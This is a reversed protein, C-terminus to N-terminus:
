SSYVGKIYKKPNLSVFDGPFINHKNSARSYIDFYEQWVSPCLDLFFPHDIPQYEELSRLYLEISIQQEVTINYLEEVMIRTKIPVDKHPLGNEKLDKMMMVNQERIYENQVGWDARYGETTRIVYEAFEQLVPCGAYEYLMSFAKARALKKLKSSKSRAYRNPSYGFDVLATMIDTIMVQDDPHFLNGCFSAESIETFRELKIIFGLETFLEENFHEPHTVVFLGDDGEFVGIIRGAGSEATIYECIIMNSFGNGLSTNMEGSMRTGRVNFTFFKFDLINTGAIVNKLFFMFFEKWCPLDKCMYEYMEFECANLFEPSFCGEFSTFDTALYVNNDGYLRDYIYKARLRKPIRKIFCPNRFVEKEIAKFVPGVMVKVADKRAYIGRAPKYETYTEDKLFGGVKFDSKVNVGGIREYEARLEDKRWKEYKTSALWYEFELYPNDPTLPVLNNRCWKRIFRKFKRLRISLPKPTKGLCRKKIGALITEPDKLDPKPLCLGEVQCGISVGAITRIGDYVDIKNNFVLSGEKLDEVVPLNVENHKYGYM